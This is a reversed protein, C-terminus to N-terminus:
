DDQEFEDEPPRSSAPEGSEMRKLQKKYYAKKPDLEVAKKQAAIALAKEGRQFHVEALTDRFAAASPDLEVAKQAHKLGEDMQRRCCASLWALSNHVWGCKPYDKSLAELVANTKGFLEDAERKRGRKELAPVFLIPADVDGPLDDVCIGIERLAEDVKGEELLGRARQRHVM